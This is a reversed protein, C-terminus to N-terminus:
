TASLDPRPSTGLSLVAELGARPLDIESVDVPGRDRSSYVTARDEHPVLLVVRRAGADLYGVVRGMVDNYLDAEHVVVFALDSDSPSARRAYTTSSM